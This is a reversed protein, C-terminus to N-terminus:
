NLQSPVVKFDARSYPGNLDQQPVRESKPLRGFLPVVMETLEDLPKNGAVVLKMRSTFYNEQFFGRAM